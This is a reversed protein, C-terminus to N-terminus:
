KLVLTLTSSDGLDTLEARDIAIATVKYRLTVPEGLKAMFLQGAGSIIATRIAGDPGADEAIGVLKLPAPRPAAPAPDSVVPAPPAVPAVAAASPRRSFEFLNRGPMQPTASPRLRERLRTIEAALERGRLEVATASHAVPVAIRRNGTTSAAAFWAILAAGVVGFVLVRKMKM